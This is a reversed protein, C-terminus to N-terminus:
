QAAEDARYAARLRNGCNMRIQGPNLKAYKDKISKQTVTTGSIETLKHATIAIVEDVDKGRLLTAVQDGIDLTPRGSKTKVEPHLQYHSLDAGAVISHSQEGDQRVLPVVGLAKPERPTRVKKEKPQKPGAIAKAAKKAGSEGAAKVVTLYKLFVSEPEDKDAFKVRAKRESVELVMGVAVNRGTGDGDFEVSDGTNITKSM